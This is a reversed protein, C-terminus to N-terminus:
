TIPGYSVVQIPLRDKENFAGTRQYGSVPLYVGDYNAPDVGANWTIQLRATAKRQVFDTADGDGPLGFDGSGSADRFQSVLVRGSDVTGTPMSFSRISNVPNALYTGHASDVLILEVDVLDSLATSWNGAPETQSGLHIPNTIFLYWDTGIEMLELGMPDPGDQFPM